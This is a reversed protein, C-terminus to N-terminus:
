NRMQNLQALTQEVADNSNQHDEQRQDIEGIIDVLQDRGRKDTLHRHARRHDGGIDSGGKKVGIFNVKM